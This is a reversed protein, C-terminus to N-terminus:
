FGISCNTRVDAVQCVAHVVVGLAVCALLGRWAFGGASWRKAFWGSAVVCVGFAIAIIPISVAPAYIPLLIAMIATWELGNKFSSCAATLYGGYAM